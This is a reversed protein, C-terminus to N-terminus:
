KKLCEGYKRRGMNSAVESMTKPIFINDDDM